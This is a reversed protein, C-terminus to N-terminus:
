KSSIPQMDRLQVERIKSKGLRREVKDLKAKLEPPTDYRFSQRIEENISKVERQLDRILACMSAHRAQRERREAYFARLEEDSMEFLDPVPTPWAEFERRSLGFAESIQSLPCRELCEVKAGGKYGKTIILKGRYDRHARCRGVWKGPSVLRAGVLDAFDEATM